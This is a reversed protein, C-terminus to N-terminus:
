DYDYRESLDVGAIWGGVKRGVRERWDRIRWRARRWWPIHVKPRTDPIVGADMLLDQSVPLYASAKTATIPTQDFELRTGPPALPQLKAVAEDIFRQFDNPTM